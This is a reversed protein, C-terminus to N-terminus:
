ANVAAFASLAAFSFPLVVTEAAGAAGAATEDPL